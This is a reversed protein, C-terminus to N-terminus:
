TGTKWQKDLAQHVTHAKNLASALVKEIISDPAVFIDAQVTRRQGGRDLRDVAQQNNGPVWDPEAILAHASVEQLGDTGVGMSQMNGILIQYKPDTRFKDVRKQRESTNTSGDIRLCGHKIFAREFINLVEIHWAFIVLKEEGGDILMHVWDVIQPAIAIGMLRRVAAVHGLIKINGTDLNEPDIGLLSEAELAQKVPGTKEVRILDYLPLRLQPMVERKLHRVMFNARMRYQLEQHRGSREDVYVYHTGDKRTGTKTERPNFRARFSDESMWDYSDWCLARGLTYAERPRNLLPTGTLAVVSGARSALADFLKEHSHKKRFTGTELDGFIARTRISDSTKLMHAEDLIILDYTGKALARGIAENRALEYSVVTWAATPHVGRAGSLIPYVVYPWRMVSWERIRACWQLRISAPCVVLVRKAKIENAYSIAIPTKGLGPQDAVLGGGRKLLYEVSAKQFGWLERGHPTAVNIDSVSKWSETVADTIWSLKQKAHEDGYHAFPAATYANDTYMCAMSPSSRPESMNMGYDSILEQASPSSGRPVHMVFQQTKDIYQLKM